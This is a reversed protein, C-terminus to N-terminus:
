CNLAIQLLTLICLPIHGFNLWSSPSNPYTWVQCTQNSQFVFEPAIASNTRNM